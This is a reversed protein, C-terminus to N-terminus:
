RRRRALRRARRQAAPAGALRLRMLDRASTASIACLAPNVDLFTGDATTLAIGIAAQQFTARYRADDRGDNGALARTPNDKSM